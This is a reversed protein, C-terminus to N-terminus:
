CTTASCWYQCNLPRCISALPAFPQPQTALFLCGVSVKAAQVDWDSRQVPSPTCVIHRANLVHLNQSLRFMHELASAAGVDHVHPAEAVAPQVTIGGVQGYDFSPLPGTFNNSNLRLSQLGRWATGNPIPVHGTFYNNQSLCLSQCPITVAALINRHLHQPLM